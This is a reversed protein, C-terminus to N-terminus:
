RGSRRRGLLTARQTLPARTNKAGERHSKSRFALKGARHVSRSCHAWSGAVRPLSRIRVCVFLYNLSRISEVGLCLPWKALAPPDCHEFGLASSGYPDNLYRRCASTVIAFERRGKCLSLLMAVRAPKASALRLVGTADACFVAGVVAGDGREDSAPKAGAFGNLPKAGALGTAVPKAAGLDILARVPAAAIGGPLSPPTTGRPGRRDSLHTEPPLARLTTALRVGRRRPVDAVVAAPAVALTLM